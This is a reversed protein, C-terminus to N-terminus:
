YIISAFSRRSAGAPASMARERFSLPTHGQNYLANIEGAQLARNFVRGDFMGGTFGFSTAVGSMQTQGSNEPTGTESLTGSQVGHVYVRMTVGDYSAAIHSWQGAVIAAAAVITRYDALGVTFQLFPHLTADLGLAYGFHTSNAGRGITYGSTTTTPNVWLSVTFNKALYPSVDATHYNNPTSGTAPGFKGTQAGSAQPITGNIGGLGYNGEAFNQQRGGLHDLAWWVGDGSPILFGYDQAVWNHEGRAFFGNRIM